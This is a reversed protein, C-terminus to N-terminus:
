SQAKGSSDTLLAHCEPSEATNSFNSPKWWSHTTFFLRRKSILCACWKGRMETSCLFSVKAWCLKSHLASLGPARTILIQFYTPYVSFSLCICYINCGKPFLAQVFRDIFLYGQPALGQKAGPKEELILILFQSVICLNWLLWQVATAEFIKQTHLSSTSLGKLKELTPFFKKERTGSLLLYWGYCYFSTHAPM